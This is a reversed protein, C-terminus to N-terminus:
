YLSEILVDLVVLLLLIVLPVRPSYETACTRAMSTCVIWVNPTGANVSIRRAPSAANRASRLRQGVAARITTTQPPPLLPPSPYTRARKAM